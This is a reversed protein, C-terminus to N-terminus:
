AAVLVINVARQLVHALHINAVVPKFRQHSCNIALLSLHLKPHTTPHPEHNSLSVMLSPPSADIIALAASYGIVSTASSPEKCVWGM